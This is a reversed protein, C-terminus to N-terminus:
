WYDEFEDYEYCELHRGSQRHNVRLLSRKKTSAVKKGRDSLGVGGPNELSRISNRKRNDLRDLRREKKWRHSLVARQHIELSRNSNSNRNQLLDLCREKKGRDSLGVEGPNELSNNSNPIRTNLRGVQRKLKKIKKGHVVLSENSYPIESELIRTGKVFLHLTKKNSRLHVASMASAIVVASINRCNEVNLLELDICLSILQSCGVDTINQCSTCSLKKLKGAYAMLSLGYDTLGPCYSISFDTLACNKVLAAIGQDSVVRKNNYYSQYGSIDLVELKKCGESINALVSDDVFNSNKLSLKRLNHLHKHLPFPMWYSIVNISTACFEDVNSMNSYLDERYFLGDFVESTKFSQLNTVKALGSILSSEWLKSCSILELHKLTPPLSSLFKCHDKKHMFVFSELPIRELLPRIFDLTELPNKHKRSLLRKLELSKLHKCNSILGKVDKLSFALNQISLHRLNICYNAIMHVTSRRLIHFQPLDIRQISPGCKELIGQLISINLEEFHHEKEFNLHTTMKWQDLLVRRWKRCVLELEVKEKISFYSFIEFLCDDNLNNIGFNRKGQANAYQKFLSGPYKEWRRLGKLKFYKEREKEELLICCWRRCM